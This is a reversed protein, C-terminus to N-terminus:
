TPNGTLSGKINLQALSYSVSQLGRDLTLADIDNLIVQFSSTAFAKNTRRRDRRHQYHEYHM